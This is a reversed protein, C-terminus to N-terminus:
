AGCNCAAATWAGVVGARNWATSAELWRRAPPLGSASGNSSVIEGLDHAVGGATPTGRGPAAFAAARCGARDAALRSLSSAPSSPGKRRCAARVRRRAGVLVGLRQQELQGLVAGRFGSKAGVRHQTQRVGGGVRGVHLPEQKRQQVLRIVPAVGQPGQPGRRPCRVDFGAQEPPPVPRRQGPVLPPLRRPLEQQSKLRIRSRHDFIM